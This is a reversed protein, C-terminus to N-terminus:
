ALVGHEIRTLEDRVIQIGFTNDLLSKPEINGLAPIKTNLWIYFEGMSGFIAAGQRLIRYVEIIRESHARSIRREFHLYSQVTEEDAQMFKAWDNHSFPSDKLIAWFYNAPIGHRSYQMLQFEDNLVYDLKVIHSYEKGLKQNGSIYWDGIASQEDAVAHGQSKAYERLKEALLNRALDLRSRVTGIPINAIAAIEEFTFDELDLLVVLRLEPSLVNIAQTVEDGILHGGPEERMRSDTASVSEDEHRFTDVDVANRPERVASRYENLFANRCIRFLWAKANTGERYRDMFNWAKIYTEQTLDEARTADNTMRYAFTYIAHFHPYFEREFLQEYASKGRIESSPM